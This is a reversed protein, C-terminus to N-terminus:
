GVIEVHPMTEPLSIGLEETRKRNVFGQHDSTKPYCSTLSSLPQGKLLAGVLQGTHIGVKHYNVGFSGLVLGEKVSAEDANFVPIKMRKAISAIVPLTPQITGSTGVYIFDVKGKFTEMHLPVNRAQDVPIALLHMGMAATAEKMMSFLAMDNSEGTAYLLGVTKAEPLLMKAFGILARLDQRDSSGILSHLGAATPDTVVSYVLPIDKVSGKAFQAIPTGVVVMVKPKQSTLKSIMQPILAPDFGVHAIAYHITKGEVFGEKELETKIGGITADLSSHPGYNAISVLPLSSKDKMTLFGMLGLASVGALTLALKRSIM